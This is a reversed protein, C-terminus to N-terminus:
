TWTKYISFLCYLMYFQVILDKNFFNSLRM